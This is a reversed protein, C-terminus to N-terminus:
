GGRVEPSAVSGASGPLPYRAAHVLPTTGTANVVVVRANALAGALRLADDASVSVTIVIRGDNTHLPGSASSETGAALVPADVLVYGAQTGDHAVGVVDIRDGAGIAGAVADAADVSFSVARARRPAAARALDSARLPDGRRVPANVIAGALQAGSGARLLSALGTGDGHLVATRVDAPSFPAGVRLDHAAVLVRVERSDARLAALTLVGGLLGALAVVVHAGSVRGFWRIRAPVAGSRGVTM